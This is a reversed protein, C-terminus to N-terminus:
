RGCPDVASTHEHSQLHVVDADHDFVEVSGNREEAFEAHLKDPLAYDLALPRAADGAQTVLPDLNRHHPRGVAVALQFQRPEDGRLHNRVVPPRRDVREAVESDHEGDVVDVVSKVAKLTTARLQDARLDHLVLLGVSEAIEAARFADEDCQGLRQGSGAGPPVGPNVIVGLDSGAAALRANHAAEAADPGDLDAVVSLAADTTEAPSTVTALHTLQLSRTPWGQGRATELEDRYADGLAVFASPAWTTPLPVPDDYFSVPLRPQEAALAAREQPDPLLHAVVEDPWWTLWPRLVGDDDVHEALLTRQRTPTLHEAAGLQPLVADLFVAARATVRDAVTPLIHTM